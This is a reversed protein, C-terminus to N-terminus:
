QQSACNLQLIVVFFLPLPIQHRVSKSPPVLSLAGLILPRLEVNDKGCYRLTPATREKKGWQDGLM